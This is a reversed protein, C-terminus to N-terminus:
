IGFVYLVDQSEPVKVPCIRCIRATRCDYVTKQKCYEQFFQTYIEDHVGVERFNTCIRFRDFQLFSNLGENFYGYTKLILRMVNRLRNLDFYNRVTNLGGYVTDSDSKVRWKGWSVCIIGSYIECNRCLYNHEYRPRYLSLHEM